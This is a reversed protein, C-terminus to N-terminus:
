HPVVVVVVYGKEPRDVTVRITAESSTNSFKVVASQLYKLKLSLHSHLNFLPPQLGDMRLPISDEPFDLGLATGEPTEDLHMSLLTLVSSLPDPLGVALEYPGGKKFLRDKYFAEILAQEFGEGYHQHMWWHVLAGTDYECGHTTMTLIGDKFLCNKIRSWQEGLGMKLKHRFLQAQAENFPWRPANYLEPSGRRYAHVAQHLHVSEHIINRPFWTNARYDPNEWNTCPFYLIEARDSENKDPAIDKGSFYALWKGRIKTLTTSMFIIIKRNGDFDTAKGMLREIESYAQSSKNDIIQYNNQTFCRSPTNNETEEYYLFRDGIHVLQGKVDHYSRTNPDWIEFSKTYPPEQYPAQFPSEWNKPALTQFAPLQRPSVRQTNTAGVKAEISFSFPARWYNGNDYYGDPMMGPVLGIFIQSKPIVFELQGEQFDEPSFYFAYPRNDGGSNSHVQINVADMATNGHDDSVTLTATFNGAAKYIHSIPSACGQAEDSHDGFNLACTLADGDPDSANIQFFVTLPATGSNPSATLSATPARNEPENIRQCSALLALLLLFFVGKTNQTWSM